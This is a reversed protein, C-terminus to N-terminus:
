WKSTYMKNYVQKENENYVCSPEFTQNHWFGPHRMLFKLCGVVNQSYIAAKQRAIGAVDSQLEFKHEIKEDNLIGWSIKSLKEMWEDANQYLLKKTLPAM